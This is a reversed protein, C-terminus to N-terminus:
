PPVDGAWSRCAWGTSFYAMEAVDGNHLPRERVWAPSLNAALATLGLTFLGGHGILLTLEGRNLDAVEELLGALRDVVEAGTEGDGVREDLGGDMWRGFVRTVEDADAPEDSRDLGGATFESLRPDVTVPLDLASGVIDATQRGRLLPSSWIGALRQGRLADAIRAAQERGQESLPRDDGALRPHGEAVAHRVCLVRAECQLDSM